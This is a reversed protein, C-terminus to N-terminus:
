TRNAQPAANYANIMGGTALTLLSEDLTVVTAGNLRASAAIFRTSPDRTTSFAPLRHADLMTHSSMPIITVGPPREQDAILGAFDDIAIAGLEIQRAFEWVSITSVFLRREHAASEITALLTASLMADGLMVHGWVGTDLLIPTPAALATLDTVLM